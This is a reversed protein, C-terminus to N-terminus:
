EYEDPYEFDIGIAFEAAWGTVGDSDELLVWSTNGRLPALPTWEVYPQAADIPVLEIVGYPVTSVFYDTEDPGPPRARWPFPDDGFFSVPFVVQGLALWNTARRVIGRHSCTGIYMQDFVTVEEGHSVQGIIRSADDPRAHIAAPRLGRTALRPPLRFCLNGGCPSSEMLPAEAAGHRRPALACVLEGNRQPTWWLGTWNARRSQAAATCLHRMDLRGGLPPATVEFQGQASIPRTPLGGIDVVGCSSMAGPQHATWQGNWRGGLSAAVRPCSYDASQQDSLPWTEADRAVPAETPHTCASTLALLLALLQLRIKM